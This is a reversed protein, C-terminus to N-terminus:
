VITLFESTALTMTVNANGFKKIRVSGTITAITPTTDDNFATKLNYMEVHTGGNNAPISNSWNSSASTTSSWSPNNLTQFKSGGGCKTAVYTFDFSRVPANAGIRNSTLEGIKHNAKGTYRITPNTTITYNTGASIDLIFNIDALQSITVDPSLSSSITTSGRPFVKIGYTDTASPFHLLVPVFGKSPITASHCKIIGALPHVVDGNSM